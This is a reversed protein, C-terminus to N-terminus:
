GIRNKVQACYRLSMLVYDHGLDHIKWINMPIHFFSKIRNKVFLKNKWVVTKKDWPKPDFRPCCGTETKAMIEKSKMMCWGVSLCLM